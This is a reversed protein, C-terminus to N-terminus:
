RLSEIKRTLEAINGWTSGDTLIVLVYTGKPSYVIAADHLLGNLFGVKDAVQGSAGAPIGQRYVNRSMADLLRDRSSSKLPLQNVQLKTLFIGLDYATTQPLGSTKWGSSVLGLKAIENTLATYGYKKLLAEACPNDSKVIMDDFCRSLNRGDAINADSWKWKGAEVKKLTGYAVFLKYTSATTFAQSEGSAATRGAGGLERFYVGFTGPHDQGYHTILARIGTATKTYSRNYVVRPNVSVVAVSATESKGTLVDKISARTAEAALAQGKAGNARSLETFDRTTVRTVGAPKSVQKAVTDDFYKDSRQENISFVLRDKDASFDLWGLVTKQPIIETDSKVALRIGGASERELQKILERAQLDKVAPESVEVDLTLRSPDALTPALKGIAARVDPEDCTGGNEAKVLRLKDDEFTVTANKPKLNCNGLEKEIYDDLAANDREYDPTGDSQVLGAWLLSTPVLRLYWPYDISNVRQENVITLGVDAPKLKTYPDTEENLYVPIPQANMRRDLEWAADAKKWGGASLTDVSSFPLLTNGPYLLQVIVFIAALGGLGIAM